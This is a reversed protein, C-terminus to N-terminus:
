QALRNLDTLRFHSLGAWKFLLRWRAAFTHISTTTVHDGDPTTRASLARVVRVPLTVCHPNARRTRVLATHARLNVDMWRLGFIEYRRLGCDAALLLALEMDPSARAAILLDELESPTPMGRRRETCIKMRRTVRSRLHNNSYALNLLAAIARLHLNVTAARRTACDSPFSVILYERLREIDAPKVHHVLRQQGLYRVCTFAYELKKSHDPQEAAFLAYDALCASLTRSVPGPSSGVVRLAELKLTSLQTEAELVTPFTWYQIEAGRMQWEIRWPGGPTQRLNACCWPLQLLESPVIEQSLPHQAPARPRSSCVSMTSRSHREECSLPM